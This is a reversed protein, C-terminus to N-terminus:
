TRSARVAPGASNLRRTADGLVAHDPHAPDHVARQAPLPRRRVARDHDARRLRALDPHGRLEGSRGGRDLTSSRSRTSATRCPTCPGARASCGTATPSSTGASTSRPRRHRQRRRPLAARQQLQDGAARARGTHDHHRQRQQRRAQVWSRRHPRGEARRGPRPLSYTALPPRPRKHGHGTTDTTTATTTGATTTASRSGTSRTTWPTPSGRRADETLIVDNIFSATGAPVLTYSKLM